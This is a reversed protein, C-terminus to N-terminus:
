SRYGRIMTLVIEGIFSTLWDMVVICIMTAVATSVVSRGVGKAGGTTTYGKFTCVTALVVAFVGCKILGNLISIPSVIMPVHRLYEEFNVGAFAQGMLMGGFVSMILGAGLLFFSSIIIGIFRPVIIEQLPDAGLCRVADIQETVRMTGLEASTFAGVKGSLMFAILLPGVERFTGSTALGGLYGLAGFEKMQMAFQVTMIAGVFFGAMATNFFSDATVKWIQDFVEHSKIKKSFMTSLIKRLFLLAGGIEDLISIFITM